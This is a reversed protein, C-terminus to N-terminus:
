PFFTSQTFPFPFVKLWTKPLLPQLEPVKKNKVVVCTQM